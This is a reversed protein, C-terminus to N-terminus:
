SIAILFCVLIIFLSTAHLNRSANRRRIILPAITETVPIIPCKSYYQFVFKEAYNLEKGSRKRGWDVDSCQPSNLRFLQNNIEDFWICSINKTKVDQVLSFEGIKWALGMCAFSVDPKHCSPDYKVEFAFSKECAFEVRSKRGSCESHDAYVSKFNYVGRGLPPLSCHTTRSISTTHKMMIKDINRGWIPYPDRTYPLLSSCFLRLVHNFYYHEQFDQGETVIPLSQSLRYVLIDSGIIDTVGFRTLRPRCGNTFNSLLLYDDIFFKARGTGPWRGTVLSSCKYPAQHQFIYQQKCHFQGYPPIDLTTENIVVNQLGHHLSIEKWIGQFKEPFRCETKTLESPPRDTGEVPKRRKLHMTLSKSTASVNRVCIPQNYLQLIFEDSSNIVKHIRVCIFDSATFTFANRAITRSKAIFYTFSGDKWPTSYCSLALHFPANGDLQRKSTSCQSPLNIVLGEKGMCDSEFTGLGTDNDFCQEETLTNNVEMIQFGGRLEAPCDPLQKTSTLILPSENTILDSAYCALDTHNDKWVSQEYEIVNRGRKRFKVCSYKADSANENTANESSIIFIHPALKKWCYFESSIMSGQSDGFIEVKGGKFTWTYEGRGYFASNKDYPRRKGQSWYRCNKSSETCSEQLFGPFSCHQDEISLGEVGPCPISHLLTIFAVLHFCLHNRNTSAMSFRVSVQFAVM